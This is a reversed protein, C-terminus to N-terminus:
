IFIEEFIKILEVIVISYKMDKILNEENISLKFGKVKVIENLFSGADEKDISTIIEIMQNKDDICFDFSVDYKKILECIKELKEENLYKKVIDLDDSYLKLMKNQEKNAISVEKLRKKYYNKYESICNIRIYSKEIKNKNKIVLRSYADEKFSYIDYNKYQIYSYLDCLKQNLIMKLIEEFEKKKENDLKENRIFEKNILRLEEDNLDKFNQKENEVELLAVLFMSIIAILILMGLNIIIYLDIYSKYPEALCQVIMFMCMLSLLSLFVGCFLFLPNKQKIGKRFSVISNKFGDITVYFFFFSQSCIILFSMLLVVIASLTDSVRLIDSFYSIDSSSSMDYVNYFCDKLFNFLLEFSEFIGYKKLISFIWIAPFLFLIFYKAIIFIYIKRKDKESLMQKLTNLIKNYKEKDIFDPLKKDKTNM